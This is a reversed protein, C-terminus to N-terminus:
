SAEPFKGVRIYRAQYITSWKDALIDSVVSKTVFKKCLPKKRVGGVDIETIEEIFHPVCQEISCRQANPADIVDSCCEECIWRRCRCPFLHKSKKCGKDRDKCCSQRGKGTSPSKKQCCHASHNSLRDSAASYSVKCWHNVM